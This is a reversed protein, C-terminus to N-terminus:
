QFLDKQSTASALYVVLIPSRPAVRSFSRFPFASSVLCKRSNTLLSDVCFMIVPYKFLNASFDFFHIFSEFSM